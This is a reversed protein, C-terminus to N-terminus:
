PTCRYAVFLLALDRYVANASVQIGRSDPSTLISSFAVFWSNIM